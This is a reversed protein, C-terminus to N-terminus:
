DQDERQYEGEITRQQKQNQSSPHFGAPGGPRMVQSRKLLTIILTRRLPPILLLFGIIDTIFGPLLLMFGCLLLVMAELVEVAPMEGREMMGRVKLATSFGQMRVMLGGLVATFVTLVITSMAGIESGVQILFYLEVLPAGVFLLLFILAPNM